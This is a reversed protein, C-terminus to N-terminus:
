LNTNKLYKKPLWDRPAIKLLEEKTIWKFESHEHSLKIENKTTSCLFTTLNLEGIHSYKITTNYIPRIIHVDLGTEEKVERKLAEEKEEGEEIRGGPLDFPGEFKPDSSKIILFKNNYKILGKVAKQMGDCSEISIVVM